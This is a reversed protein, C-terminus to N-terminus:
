MRTTRTSCRPGNPSPTRRSTAAIAVNLVGADASQAEDSAAADTAATDTAAADTAATDAPKCGAFTLALLCFVLVLALVKKMFM